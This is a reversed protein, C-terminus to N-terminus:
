KHAGRRMIAQKSVVTKHPYNGVKVIHKGKGTVKGM